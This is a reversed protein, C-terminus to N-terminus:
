RKACVQSLGYVVSDINKPTLGALSIRGNDTTYIAFKERLTQVQSPDLDTFSFMGKHSKLDHFLPPLKEIFLKRMTQIRHRVTEVDKLWIKKLDERKLIESVIRAGHAPPNSYLARIIRKIQSGVRTKTAANESVVFLAGVRQCYLSFSKSCSYAIAMELGEQLFLRISAVDQEVGEGLGQYAVDFFPFLKKEKMVKAMARWEELTPDCGTPNHCSAHLLVVTRAPMQKFAAITAEFDFGRKEHSYHPYKEPQIGTRELISRHNPWTHNSIYFSRGVTQALFEAGVRLAGTGGVAHAAYVRGHVEEWTREGLILRGLSEGLDSLGDIPLYDAMLDPDFIARKAEKVSSFLVPKLEEDKYIGVMLDVKEKRPDAKFANALGFIPDPPAESVEQFFM